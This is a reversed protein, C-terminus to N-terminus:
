PHIRTTVGTRSPRSRLSSSSHRWRAEYFFGGGVRATRLFRMDLSRALLIGQRRGPREATSSRLAGSHKSRQSRGGRSPRECFVCKPLSRRVPHTTLRLSPARAFISGSARTRRCGDIRIRVPQDEVTVAPTVSLRPASRSGACGATAVVVFVVLALRSMLGRIECRRGHGFPPSHLPVLATLRM